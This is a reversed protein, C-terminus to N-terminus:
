PTLSSTLPPYCAPAALDEFVVFRVTQPMVIITPQGTAAQRLDTLSPLTDGAPQLRVGNLRIRQSVLAEAATANADAGSSFEYDFRTSADAGDISSLPLTFSTDNALNILLLTLVGPSQCQAWARLKRSGSVRASLVVPGM